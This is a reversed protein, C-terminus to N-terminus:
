YYTTHHSSLHWVGFTASRIKNQKKHTHQILSTSSALQVHLFTAQVPSSSFMKYSIRCKQLFSNFINLFLFHLYTHKQALNSLGGFCICPYSFVDSVGQTIGQCNSDCQQWHLINHMYFPLKKSKKLSEVSCATHHCKSIDQLRLQLKLKCLWVITTEQSFIKVKALM